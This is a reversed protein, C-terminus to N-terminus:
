YEMFQQNKAIIFLEWLAPLTSHTNNEFAPIIM